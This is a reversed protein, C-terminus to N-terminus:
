EVVLLRGPWLFCPHNGTPRGKDPVIFAFSAARLPLITALISVMNSLGIARWPRRHIPRKKKEAAQPKAHAM